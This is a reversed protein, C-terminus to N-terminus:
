LYRGEEVLKSLKDFCTDCVRLGSFLVPSHTKFSRVNEKHIDCLMCPGSAPELRAWDAKMRVYCEMCLALPMNFENLVFCSRTNGCDSCLYDDKVIM